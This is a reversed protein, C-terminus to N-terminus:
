WTKPSSTAPSSDLGKGGAFASCASTAGFLFLRRISSCPSSTQCYGSSVTAPITSLSRSGAVCTCDAYTHALPRAITADLAPVGLLFESTSIPGAAAIQQIRSMSSCPPAFMSGLVKVMRADRSMQQLIPRACLDGRPGLVKDLLYALQHQNHLAVGVLGSGCFCGLFWGSRGVVEEASGGRGPRARRYGRTTERM